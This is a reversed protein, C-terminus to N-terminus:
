LVCFRQDISGGLLDYYAMAFKPQPKARM